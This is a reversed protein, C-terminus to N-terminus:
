ATVAKIVAFNFAPAETATGSVASISVKFSGSGVNTVIANYLNAGSSQNVIITDTAAVQSNTVTFSNWTSSGAASVLTIKGCLANITVGTTRNTLQTVTAGAGTGYGLPSIMLLGSTTVNGVTSGSIRLAISSAQISLAAYADTTRNYATLGSSTFELGAGSAGAPAAGGTAEVRLMNSGTNLISSQYAQGASWTNAGNLLPVTGGSTGTNVTSATGLGSVDTNAIALLAKVQSATLAIPTAASVTNNGIISNAALNAMKSLTVAGAAITLVASGASSTVDGGSIAPLRGAALTGSSLDSASGSTAVAALGSVDSAGIALLTKTQAPTLALPPGSAGSNNGLITLNAINALKTLALSGDAIRAAAVTGTLNAADTGTAFYGLGSVDSATIALFTKAQAPTLDAVNGAATAGLITAGATQALMARTVKNAGIALSVSGAGSTTVDGGTFQPLRGAAFTGTLNAADTGTAFYGLGLTARAATADADDILNRGFASLVTPDISWVGSMVTIDGYDGDTVASATPAPNNLLYNVARAVTRPDGGQAPLSPYTV